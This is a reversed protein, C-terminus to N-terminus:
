RQRFKHCPGSFACLRSNRRAQRRDPGERHLEDNSPKVLSSSRAKEELDRYTEKLEILRRVLEHLTKDLRAERIWEALAEQDYTDEGRLWFAIPERLLLFALGAVLLPVGLARVIPWVQRVQMFRIGM